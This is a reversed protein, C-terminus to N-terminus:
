NLSAGVVQGIAIGIGILLSGYVIAVGTNGMKIHESTNFDTIKDLLVTGLYMFFLTIFGALVAYTCNILINQIIHM